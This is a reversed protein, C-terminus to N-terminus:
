DEDRVDNGQQPAPGFLEAPRVELGPLFVTHYIGTEPVITEEWTDGARVLVHMRRGIADLIWYERVGVRLYEERKEGFDRQEGGPSVVEVVIHPVWKTWVGPGSPEPDLYIAQDPHRDSVMGPLRMRCEGSGARYNIRGPYQEDYHIFLRAVRDVIRGHWPGAIENVDVVGRALEYRWGDEFEAEVFEELTMGRGHDAPGIRLTTTLATATAM